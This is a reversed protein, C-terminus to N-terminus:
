PTYDYVIWSKNGTLLHQFGANAHIALQETYGNRRGVTDCEFLKRNAGWKCSTHESQASPPMARERMGDDAPEQLAELVLATM